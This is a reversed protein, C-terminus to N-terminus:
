EMADGRKGARLRPALYIVIVLAGIGVGLIVVMSNDEVIQLPGMHLEVSAGTQSVAAAYVEYEGPVLAAPSVDVDYVGLNGALSLNLPLAGAGQFSIYVAQALTYGEVVIEGTVHETVLLGIRVVHSDLIARVIRLYTLTQSLMVPPLVSWYDADSVNFLVSHILDYDEMAVNYEFATTNTGVSEGSDMVDLSGDVVSWAISLNAPMDDRDTIEISVDFSDVSPEVTLNRVIPRWQNTLLVSGTQDVPTMTSNSTSVSLIGRKSPSGRELKLFVTENETWWDVSLVSPLYSVVGWEYVTATGSTVNVLIEYGNPGTGTNEDLDLHVSLVRTGSYNPTGRSTVAFGIESSTQYSKVGLIDLGADIVFNASSSLVDEIGVWDDITTGAVLPLDLVHRVAWVSDVLGYGWNDLPPSQHSPPPQGSDQGGTGATLATFDNWGSVKTSAQRVLAVLGAVHPAAMSTGSRPTWLSQINSSAALINSGPAAVTIKKIGDIRPGKSSGSDINSTGENYNAVTVALDATGPSSITRTYDVHTLFEFDSFHWDGDWAYVDVTVTDGAPNAIGVDWDGNTWNHDDESIQILLNNMGRLSEDAFYYAFLSPTEIVSSSGVLSSFSGLDITDGSPPTLFVHENQDDSQWLFSLFSTDPLSSVRLTASTNTGPSVDFHAHKPRSGLNGAAVTSVTGYKMFAESVALDELDTGDLFGVFSSFSMNIIDAGNEVAFHIANLIDSSRLRSKIVMLDAGPAVGLFSTYDPQGGAITSAVHTGHGDPDGIQYAQTTLNVGRVYVDNNEQDFLVRVKPEGFLVANETSFDFRGNTNADVGGLWCDGENLDFTNDDEIDIFMYDEAIDVQGDVPLRDMHNIPGEDADPLSNGNIDVYYNGSDPIVDYPGETQRWLSPHIWEVGLDIVAVTVGSGNISSGDKELYTWVDPAGIAAVSSQLAPYYQKEGSSARVLGIESLANLSVTDSVRASYIRGVNVVSNGRREFKIGLSEALVLQQGTLEQEFQLIARSGAIAAPVSEKSSSALAMRLQPDISPALIEQPSASFHHAAPTAPVFLTVIFLVLIM